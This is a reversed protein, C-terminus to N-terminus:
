LQPVPQSIISGFKYTEEMIMNRATKNDIINHLEMHNSLHPKAWVGLDRETSSRKVRTNQKLTKLAAVRLNLSSFMIPSPPKPLTYIPYIFEYLILAAFGSVPIATGILTSRLLPICLWLSHCSPNQNM